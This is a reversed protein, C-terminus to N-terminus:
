RECRGCGKREVVGQVMLRITVSPGMSCRCPNAVSGCPVNTLERWPPRPVQLSDTCAAVTAAVRDGFWRQLDELVPAGGCDEVTDQLLAAMAEELSAGQEIVLTAVAVPHTIYPIETGTRMQGRHAATAYALASILAAHGIEGFAPLTLERALSVPPRDAHEDGTM